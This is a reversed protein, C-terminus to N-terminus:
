RAGAPIGAALGAEAEAFRRGTEVLTQGHSVLADKLVTAEDLYGQLSAAFRPAAQDSQWGSRIEGLLDGMAAIERALRVSVDDVGTGVAVVRESSLSIGDM